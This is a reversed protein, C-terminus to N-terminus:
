FKLEPYQNRLILDKKRPLLFLCIYSIYVVMAFGLAVLSRVWIETQWLESGALDSYYFLQFPIYIMSFYAGVNLILFELLYIRQGLKKKQKLRRKSRLMLFIVIGFFVLTLVGMVEMTGFVLLFLIGLFVFLFGFFGEPRGVLTKIERWILIFYRKELARSKKEVVESFGFVGFNRFERQLNDEFGLEPEKEWNEDMASALHDVLETQVDYYEVYHKRTFQYLQEIEEFSTKRM